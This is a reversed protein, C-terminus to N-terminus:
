ANDSLREKLQSQQLGYKKLLQVVSSSHEGTREVTFTVQEGQMKCSYLPYGSDGFFSVVNTFHTVYLARAGKNEIVGTFYEYQGM